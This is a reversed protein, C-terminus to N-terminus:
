GKTRLKTGRHQDQYSLQIMNGKLWAIMWQGIHWVGDMWGGAGGTALVQDTGPATSSASFDSIILFESYFLVMNQSLIVLVMNVRRCPVFLFWTLIYTSVIPKLESSMLGHFLSEQSIPFFILHARCNVWSVARSCKVSCPVSNQLVCLLFGFLVLLSESKLVHLQYDSIVVVTSNLPCLVVSTLSTGLSVPLRGHINLLTNVLM